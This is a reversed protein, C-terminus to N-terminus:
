DYDQYISDIKHIDFKEHQLVNRMVGKYMPEQINDTLSIRLKEVGNEKYELLANLCELLPDIKKMYAVRNEPRFRLRRRALTLDIDHGFLDVLHQLLTGRRNSLQFNLDGRALLAMFPATGGLHMALTLSAWAIPTREHHRITTQYNIM